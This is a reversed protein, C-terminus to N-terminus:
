HLQSDDLSARELEAALTTPDVNVTQDVGVQTLRVAEVCIRETKLCTSLLTIFRKASELNFFLTPLVYDNSCCRKKNQTLIIYSREGLHLAVSVGDVILSTGCNECEIGVGIAQLCLLSSM